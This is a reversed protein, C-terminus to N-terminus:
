ENERFESDVSEAHERTAEYYFPILILIFLYFLKKIQQHPIFLKTMQKFTFVTFLSVAVLQTLKWHFMYRLPVDTLFLPLYVFFIALIILTAKYVWADPKIKKIIVLYVLSLLSTYFSYMLFKNNLFPHSLASLNKWNIDTIGTFKRSWYTFELFLGKYTVLPPAKSYSLSVSGEGLSYWILFPLSPILFYFLSWALNKLSWSEWGVKKAFFNLILFFLIFITFSGHIQCSLGLIFFAGYLVRAGKEKGLEFAMLLVILFLVSFFPQFSANWDLLYSAQLRRSSAYLFTMWLACTIGSIRKGFFWILVGASTALTCKLYHMTWWSPAFQLPLSSIIYFFPGPTYGSGSLESGHFVPHQWWHISRLLDRTGYVTLFSLNEKFIYFYSVALFVALTELIILAYKKNLITLNRRKLSM